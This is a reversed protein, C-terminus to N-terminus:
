DHPSARVQAAAEPDIKELAKLAEEHMPGAKAAQAYKVLAPVAAKAAPGFRGLAALEPWHPFLDQRALHNTVAPIVAEPEVPLYEMSALTLCRVLFDPDAVHAVVAKACAQLVFEQDQKPMAGSRFDRAYCGLAKYIEEFQHGGAHALANTLGRVGAPGLWPLTAAAELGASGDQLAAVVAPVAPEASRGLVRLARWAKRQEYAAPKWYQAGPLHRKSLVVMVRRKLASDRQQIRHVLGPLSNTGMHRLAEAAQAQVWPQGSNLDELWQSLPRGQYHPERPWFAFVAVSCLVALLVAMGIILRRRRMAPLRTGPAAVCLLM